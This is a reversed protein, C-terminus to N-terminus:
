IRCRDNAKFITKKGITLHGITAFATLIGAILAYVNM